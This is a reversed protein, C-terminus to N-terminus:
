MGLFATLFDGCWGCLVLHKDSPFGETALGFNSGDAAAVIRYGAKARPNEILVLWADVLRDQTKGDRVEREIVVIQEPPVIAERLDVGHANTAEWADGIQSTVLTAISKANM